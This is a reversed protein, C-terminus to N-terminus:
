VKWYIWGFRADVKETVQGNIAISNIHSSLREIFEDTVPLGPNLITAWNTVYEETVDRQEEYTEPYYIVNPFYGMQSVIGFISIFMDRYQTTQESCGSLNQMLEEKLYDKRYVFSSNFCYGHCVSIAKKIAEYGWFASSMTAFVLDFKKQWKIEKDIDHFDMQVFDVNKIGSDRAVKNSIEIAVPSIDIGTAHKSHKAFHTIYRGPGCGLDLVHGDNNLINNERMFTTIDQIRQTDLNRTVPSQTLMQEWVVSRNDWWEKPLNKKDKFVVNFDQIDMIATEGKVKYKNLYKLFSVYM